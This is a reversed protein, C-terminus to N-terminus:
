ADQPLYEKHRPPASLVKKTAPDFAMVKGTRYSEVGLGIAVMVQYGRMVNYVPTARTRMCDLWDDVLDAGPESEITVETKGDNVAQFEKTFPREARVTATRRDVQLTAWNSYVTMPVSQANAM